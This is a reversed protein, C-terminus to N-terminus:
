SKLAFEPEIVALPKSFETTSLFHELKASAIAGGELRLTLIGTFGCQELKQLLPALNENM